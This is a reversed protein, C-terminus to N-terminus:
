KSVSGNVIVLVGKAESIVTDGRKIIGATKISKRGGYHEVYAECTITEGVYAPAKYDMELHVTLADVNMSYTAHSMMDDMIAAQIGGHLINEYGVYPAEITWNAKAWGDGDEVDLHLGVPNNVGCVFCHDLGMREM